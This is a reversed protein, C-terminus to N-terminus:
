IKEAADTFGIQSLLEKFSHRYPEAEPRTMVWRAAEDIEDKTPNLALLDALHVARRGESDFAAFLKFHIQDYRGLFHVTLNDQYRHTAAREMLGKPWGFTLVSITKDNLWDEPLNFDKQVKRAAEILSDLLPSERKLVPEGTKSREVFAVIDVDRTTRTVLGLINLATGGCVVLEVPSVNLEKLQEGLAKFIAEIREKEQPISM